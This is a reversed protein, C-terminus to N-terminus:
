NGKVPPPLLPPKDMQKAQREVELTQLLLSPSTASVPVWGSEAGCNGNFTDCDNAACMITELSALPTGIISVGRLLEDPKGNTFVRYVRLPLLKFVQPMWTQTMTFGGAIEDFILGYPKGQKKTEAILMERLQSYPVQKSSEVILNGQRAVPDTGPSCRGHGNSTNFDKIPSRGLLFTKLVGHNVLVVNNAPVGEDDYRYFGNLPTGGLKPCTPDDRVSIFTPMIKKGVMKTFTRGEDEDKQRHGEARHGFVEHFFVGAAKSRLIVPGAFPEAVRAERLQEVSKALNQVMETLKNEDPLDKSVPSEVHDYLWVRMGDDATASALTFLNYQVTEDELKTGESTVMFRRIKTAHLTVSSDTIKPYKKYIASARRLRDQWTNIDLNFQEEKGTYVHPKETSFDNSPDEEAVLVDKDTQAEKFSKQATKYAVDTENWIVARLASEDDEIPVAVSERWFNAYVNRSHHTSDLQPSGVRLEVNLQRSHKLEPTGELGGYSSSLSVSQEDYIRYALYHVPAPGANKLKAFSRTLEKEMAQMVVNNDAMESNVTAINAVVPPSEAKSYANGSLLLTTCFASFLKRKM